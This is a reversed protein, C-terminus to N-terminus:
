EDAAGILGSLDNVDLPKDYAGNARARLRQMPTMISERRAAEEQAGAIAQQAQALLAAGQARDAARQQQYQAERKQQKAPDTEMGQQKLYQLKNYRMTEAHRVVADVSPKVGSPLSRLSASIANAHDQYTGM